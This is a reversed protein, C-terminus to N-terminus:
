VCAAHTRGAEAACGVKFVTSALRCIQAHAHEHQALRMQACEDVRM